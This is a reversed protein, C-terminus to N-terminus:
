SRPLVLSFHNLLCCKIHLHFNFNSHSYVANFVCISATKVMKVIGLFVVAAFYRFIIYSSFSNVSLCQYCALNRSPFCPLTYQIFESVLVSLLGSESFSLVSTHIEARSNYPYGTITTKGQM